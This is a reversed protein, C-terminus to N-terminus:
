KRRLLFEALEFDIPANIDVSREEPMIYARSIKGFLDDQKILETKTLYIACNRKYMKSLDQRRSSQKGEEEFYPLIVGEEIKKVKKPSFDELEKMSMVSDTDTEVALKICEDIDEALRMPSTPQLIMLYDYEEDENEKLWELAHQVVEMSTSEDQAFEDPRTFPVECGYHKSIKAIEKDDTSLITRTLYKSKNAAEITYAILPKGALDKINKRPISKSGGRATIVALITKSKYM